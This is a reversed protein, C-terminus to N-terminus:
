HCRRAKDATKFSVQSFTSTVKFEEFRTTHLIALAPVATCPDICGLPFEIPMLFRNTHILTEYTFKTRFVSPSVYLSRAGVM